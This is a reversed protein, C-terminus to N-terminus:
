TSRDSYSRDPDPESSEAASSPPEPVEVQSIASSPAEPVAPPEKKNEGAERSRKSRKMRALRQRAKRKNRREEKRAKRAEAKEKRVAEKQLRTEEDVEATVVIDKDVVMVDNIPLEFSMGFLRIRSHGVTRTKINDTLLLRVGNFLGTISSMKAPMVVVKSRKARIKVPEKYHLYGVNQQADNYYTLKVEELVYPIFFDNRIRVHNEMEVWALGIEQTVVKIVENSASTDVVRILISQIWSHILKFIPALLKRM